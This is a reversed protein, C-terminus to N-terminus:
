IKKQTYINIFKIKIKTGNFNSRNQSAHGLNITKKRYLIQEFKIFTYNLLKQCHAINKQNFKRIM